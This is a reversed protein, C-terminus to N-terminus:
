SRAASSKPFLCNGLYDLFKGSKISGLLEMVINELALWKNDQAM